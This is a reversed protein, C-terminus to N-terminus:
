DLARSNLYKTVASIDLSMSKQSPPFEQFTALFKGVMRGAPGFLWSRNEAWEDYGRAKTFREFSDVKLNIIFPSSLQTQDARFWKEQGRLLLKWDGYRIDQFTTETFYYYDISNSKGSNLVLDSQDYGDLHAKFNKNGFTKGKLIVQM